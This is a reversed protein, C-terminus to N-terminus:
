TSAPLAPSSTSTVDIPFAGTATASGRRRTDVVVALWGSWIPVLPLWIPMWVQTVDVGSGGACRSEDITGFLTNSTVFGPYVEHYSEIFDRYDREDCCSPDPLRPYSGFSANWSTNGLGGSTCRRLILRGQGCTISGHTGDRSRHHLQAYQWYSAISVLCTGVSLAALAWWLSRAGAQMARGQTFPRHPSMVPLFVVDDVAQIGSRCLSLGTSGTATERKIRELCEGLM